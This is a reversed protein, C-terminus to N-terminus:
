RAAAILLNCAESCPLPISKEPSGLQNFCLDFKNAPLKTVPRERDIRWLITKLCKGNSACFSGILEDAQEDTIKKVAAYMGTQRNATDRFNVASLKGNRQALLSGLMAPYFFDLAERVERIDMLVLKWGHRLNPASKLSRYNGADDYKAIERAHEPKNFLQLVDNAADEHHRLEFRRIAIEGIQNFEDALWKELASLIPMHNEMRRRRTMGLAALFRGLSM